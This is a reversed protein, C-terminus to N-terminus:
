WGSYVLIADRAPLIRRQRARIRTTRLNSLQSLQLEADVTEVPFSDYPDLGTKLDTLKCVSSYRTDSELSHRTTIETWHTGSGTGSLQGLSLSQTMGFAHRTQLDSLM